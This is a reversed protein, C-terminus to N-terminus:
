NKEIFDRFQEYVKRELPSVLFKNRKYLLEMREARIKAATISINCCKAIDEAKHLNLGWLVCAPSLLRSAFIDAESETQPRNINFTRTHYGCYRLHHGLFIHGFEHAITFRCRHVTNEDDM